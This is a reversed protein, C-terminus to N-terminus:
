VPTRRRRALRGCLISVAAGIVAAVALPIASRDGAVGVIPAALAGIAYQTTSLVAAVSGRPVGPVGLALATCNAMTLGGSGIITFGIVFFLVASLTGTAILCALVTVSAALLIQGVGLMRWAGLRPGVWANVATSVMMAGAAAAFPITYSWGSLGLLNASVFPSASIFAMMAGYGAGQALALLLVPRATIAGHMHRWLAPRTSAAHDPTHSEPVFLWVFLLMAAGTLALLTLAGRWGFTQGVLWGLPAAALAGAGVAVSIVSIARIAAGGTFLDAAIARSLVAGAAAAVGQLVRLAILVPLAPAFPMALGAAIFVALAVLLVPRRGFRDSLPGIFLPGTGLGILLGTLTLQASWAPALFDGALEVMTPLYMDTSLPGITALFGLAGLIVTSRPPNRSVGRTLGHM